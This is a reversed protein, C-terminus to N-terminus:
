NGPLFLRLVENRFTRLARDRAPESEPSNKLSAVVAEVYDAASAREHMNQALDTFFTVAEERAAILAGWARESVYIQQVVNHEFEIRVDQVMADRLQKASLGGVNPMRSLIRFPHIREVYLTLREYAQLTLPLVSEYAHFRRDREAKRDAARQAAVFVMRGAGISLLAPVTYKVIEM